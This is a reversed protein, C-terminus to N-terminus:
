AIFCLIAFFTPLTIVANKYLGNQFIVGLIKKPMEARSSSVLVKNWVAAVVDCGLFVSDEAVGSNFGICMGVTRKM